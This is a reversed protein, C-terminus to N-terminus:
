GNFLATHGLRCLEYLSLPTPLVCVVGHLLMLPIERKPLSSDAMLISVHWRAGPNMHTPCKDTPRLPVLVWPFFQGSGAISSGLWTIIKRSGTSRLQESRLRTLETAFLTLLNLLDEYLPIVRVSGPHRCPLATEGHNTLVNGRIFAMRITRGTGNPPLDLGDEEVGM